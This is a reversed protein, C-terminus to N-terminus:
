ERLSLVTSKWSQSILEACEGMGWGLGRPVINPTPTLLHQQLLRPSEWGLLWSSWPCNTPPPALVLRSKGSKPVPHPDQKGLGTRTQAENMPALHRSKNGTSSTLLLLPTAKGLAQGAPGKIRFLHGQDESSELRAFCSHLGHGAGAWLQLRQVHGRAGGAAPHGRSRGACPGQVRATGKEEQYHRSVAGRLTIGRGEGLAWEM